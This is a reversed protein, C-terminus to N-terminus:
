SSDFEQFQKECKELKNRVDRFQAILKSKLKMHELFDTVDSEEKFYKKLIKEVIVESRRDISEKLVLAEDIQNLLKTRKSVLLQIEPFDNLNYPLRITSCPISDLLSDRDDDQDNKLANTIEYDSLATQFLPISTGPCKLGESSTTSTSDRNMMQKQRHSKSQLTMEVKRLRYSLSLLLRTVKEIEGCHTTIKEGEASSLGLTFLKNLLQSGLSENSDFERHLSAEEAKLGDVTSPLNAVKSSGGASSLFGTPSTPSCLM